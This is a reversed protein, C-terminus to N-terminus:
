RYLTTTQGHANSQSVPRAAGRKAAAAKGAAHGGGFLAISPVSSRYLVVIQGHANPVQVPEVDGAFVAINAAAVAAFIAATIKLSKM